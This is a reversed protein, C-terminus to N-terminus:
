GMRTPEAIGQAPTCVFPLNRYKERWDLGYGIVFKNPIEFGVYDVQVDIKRASPKDLLACIRVSAPGRAELVHRLYNWTLGTDVVDEVVLVDKGEINVALDKIIRVVGTTKTAAGYSSVSMFDIEVPLEVHRMLDALFVAAGRLIGVMVADKARYDTTIRRGLEAVRARIAPETVVIEGIIQRM